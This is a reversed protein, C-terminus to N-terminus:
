CICLADLISGLAGWAVISCKGQSGWGGLLHLSSDGGCIALSTVPPNQGGSLSGESLMRWTVRGTHETLEAGAASATWHIQM